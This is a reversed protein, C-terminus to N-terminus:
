SEALRKVISTTSLGDIMPLLEIRGGYARVIEAEPIEVGAYDMGKCHVDPKLKKLVEVPTSESFPLVFDVMELASLLAIRQDLKHIPRGEGKTRRVYDDDNVGVVLADGLRRAARLSDVHGVHLVDFCGNTWVLTRGAARLNERAALMEELTVRKSEKRPPVAPLAVGCLEAEVLSCILHGVTIHCEQIRATDTSPVVIGLDCDAAFATGKAGTLGITKIGMARASKTATVISESKGSTTIAIAVDGSKGLARLQREFVHAYGYDNAIATLASSDVTLAVAAIPARDVTLRGVLEAAIHQADAASGGNGFLLVKGGAKVAAAILEAAAAIKGADRALDRRVLAGDDLVSLIWPIRHSL